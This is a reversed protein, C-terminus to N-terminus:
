EKTFLNSVQQRLQTLDTPGRLTKLVAIAVGEGERIIGLLLHETGAYKHKLRRAEDAALEIVRRSRPTLGMPECRDQEGRGILREVSDRAQQLAVGRENLLKAAVGEGEGLLGLLLRETGIYNHDFAEAEKSFCADLGTPSGIM